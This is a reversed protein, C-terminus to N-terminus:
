FIDNSSVSLIGCFVHLCIPAYLETDGDTWDLLVEGDTFGNNVNQLAVTKETRDIVASVRRAFWRYYPTEDIVQLVCLFSM